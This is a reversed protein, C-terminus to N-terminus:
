ERTAEIFRKIMAAVEARTANDHPAFLNNNKGNIIGAHSLEEVADKAYDAIDTVDNFGASESIEPLILGTHKSYRMIIVALDQRTINDDPGFNGNGYGTVIGNMAAWKIADTYWSGDIVDDFPNESENMDPMGAHRYLITVIMARNLFAYPSFEISSTGNMLKNQYVYVVDDYYWDTESVDAFPNVFSKETESPDSSPALAQTTPEAAKSSSRSSSSPRSPTGNNNDSSIIDSLALKFTGGTGNVSQSYTQGDIEANVASVNVGTTTIADNSFESSASNSVEGFLSVSNLEGTDSIFKHIVTVENGGPSTFQAESTNDLLKLSASSDAPLSITLTAKTSSYALEARETIGTITINPSGDIWYAYGDETSGGNNGLFGLPLLLSHDCSDGSVPTSAAGNSYTFSGTSSTLLGYYFSRSSSWFRSMDRFADTLEDVPTSYAIDTYSYNQGNPLSNGEFVVPNDWGIFQGSQDKHLVVFLKNIPYNSDNVAIRVSDEHEYEVGLAYIAHGTTSPEGKSNMKTGYMHILVPAGGMEFHKVANYLAELDNYTAADEKKLSPVWQLLYAYKIYDAANIVRSTNDWYFQPGLDDLKVDALYERGFVKVNPSNVNIAATTAAMGYCQGSLGNSGSNAHLKYLETGITQGFLDTYFSEKIETTQNKFSWRDDNFDMTRPRTITVLYILKESEPATLEIFATNEGFELSLRKDPVEVYEVRDNYRHLSWTASAISPEIDILQSTISTSVTATITGSIGGPQPTNSLNANSPSLVRKIKLAGEDNDDIDDEEQWQFIPYGGNSPIKWITDFDWGLTDEWVAQNTFVDDDLIDTADNEVSNDAGITVYNDKRVDGENSMGMYKTIYGIQYATAGSIVPSSVVCNSIVPYFTTYTHGGIGGALAAEAGQAFISNTNYCNSIGTIELDGAIGGVRAERYIEGNDSGVSIASIEGTNYCDIIALRSFANKGTIGGVYATLWFLFGNNNGTSHGNNFAHIKGTNFCQKITGRSTGAIGGTYTRISRPNGINGDLYSSVSINGTNYCCLALNSTYLSGNAGLIGGVYYDSIDPCSANVIIDANNFCSQIFGNYAYGVIGGILLSNAPANTETPPASSVTLDIMGSEIGVNKIEGGFVAGFLGVCRRDINTILLNKIVHGNGDFTGSFPNDSNGIPTWEMGNLDIDETLTFYKGHYPSGGDNDGLNVQQALYALQAGTAIQYPDSESGDGSGFSSVISGDWPASEAAQVDEGLGGVPMMGMVLVVALLLAVVKKFFGRM